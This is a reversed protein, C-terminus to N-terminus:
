GIGVKGGKGIKGVKGVKSKGVKWILKFCRVCIGCVVVDTNYNCCDTDVKCIGVYHRRSYMVPISHVICCGDFVLCFISATGKYQVSLISHM